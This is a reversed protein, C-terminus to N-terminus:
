EQFMGIDRRRRLVKLREKEEHTLEEEFGQKNAEALEEDSKM